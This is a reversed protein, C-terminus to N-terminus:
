HRRFANFYFPSIRIPSSCSCLAWAVISTFCSSFSLNSGKTTSNKRANFVKQLGIMTVVNCIRTLIIWRPSGANWVMSLFNRVLIKLSKLPAQDLSLSNRLVRKRQTVSSILVQETQQSRESVWILVRTRMILLLTVFKEVWVWTKQHRFAIM